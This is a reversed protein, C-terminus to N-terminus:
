APQNAGETVVHNGHFHPSHTVLGVNLMRILTKQNLPGVPRVLEGLGGDIKSDSKIGSLGNITFYRPLYTAPDITQGNKAKLGWAPDIANLYWVIQDHYTQEGTYAPGTNNDASNPLVILAGHLGLPRYM